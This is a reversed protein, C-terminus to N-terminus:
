HAMNQNVAGLAFVAGALPVGFVAGFGGGLAAVLLRHRRAGDIGLIRNMLDTLSAAMQLATGERGASGGFLHTVITGAYVLPAMRRPIWGIVGSGPLGPEEHIEDLILNNGEVADGAFYHYVLGYAVVEGCRNCRPRSCSRVRM